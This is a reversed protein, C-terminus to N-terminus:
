NVTQTVSATAVSYDASGAYTAHVVDSGHPLATTSFIALGTSGIKATGLMTGAHTFTVLSGIPLGGNSTLTATFKVSKGLTSPNPSSVLKM